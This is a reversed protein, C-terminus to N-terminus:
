KIVRQEYEELCLWINKLELIYMKVVIEEKDENEMFKMLYQFYVKCVEVEEELYLCDVVLFLVFDCSDQLFDEYYVQFNKM